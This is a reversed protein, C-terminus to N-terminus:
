RDGGRRDAWRKVSGNEFTESTSVDSKTLGDRREGGARPLGLDVFLVDEECRELDARTIVPSSVEVAAVVLRATTILSTVDDLTAVAV